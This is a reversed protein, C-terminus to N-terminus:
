NADIMWEEGERRVDVGLLPGLSAPDSRLPDLAVSGSIPDSGGGEAVRYAVGSAQALDRAVEALPVNRFTLRGHRWEGVQDVPVSAMRYSRSAKDFTLAEGPEIRASRGDPEYIVAGEAVGVVVDRTRINVEFVTGADVLRANGVALRFPDSEDHRIEFLARGTELRAFRAEDPDLALESAGAMVITSGDELAITRTEGPATRYVEPGQDVQWVWLAAVMALCAAIAPVFWRRATRGARTHEDVDNAPASALANAGEQAALVARDYAEAHDPSAELWVTFADWQDFDPESTRVAWMAADDMMKPDVAM